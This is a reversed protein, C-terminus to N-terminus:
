LPILFIPYANAGGTTAVNAINAVSNIYLAIIYEGSSDSSWYYSSFGFNQVVNDSIRYVGQVDLYESDSLFYQYYNGNEFHANDVYDQMDYRTPLRMGVLEAYAFAAERSFYTYGDVNYAGDILEDDSLRVTRNVMNNMPTYVLQNVKYISVMEKNGHSIRVIPTDGKYIM